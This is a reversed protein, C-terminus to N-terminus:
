TKSCLEYVPLLKMCILVAVHDNVSASLSLLVTCAFCFMLSYRCLLTSFVDLSVLPASVVCKSPQPSVGSASIVDRQPSLSSEQGNHAALEHGEAPLPPVGNRAPSAPSVASKSSPSPLQNSRQEDEDESDTVVNITGDSSVLSSTHSIVSARKAENRRFQEVANIRGVSTSVSGPVADVDPSTVPSEATKQRGVRRVEVRQQQPVPAPLAPETIPSTPPPSQQKNETSARRGQLDRLLQRDEDGPFAAASGGLITTEGGGVAAFHREVDGDLSTSTDLTRAIARRVDDFTSGVSTGAVWLLGAHIRLMVMMMLLLLMVIM